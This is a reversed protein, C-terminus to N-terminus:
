KSASWALGCKTLMITFSICWVDCFDVIYSTHITVEGHPGWLTIQNRANVEYLVREQWHVDLM